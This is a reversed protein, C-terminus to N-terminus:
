SSTFTVADMQSLPLRFPTLKLSYALYSLVELRTEAPSMFPPHICITVTALVVIKQRTDQLRKGAKKYTVANENRALSIMDTAEAANKELKIWDFLLLVYLVM